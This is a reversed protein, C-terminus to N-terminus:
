RGLRRLMERPRDTIVLTVGLRRVRRLSAPAFSMIRVPGLLGPAPHALGFRGLTEVIHREVLGGYRTPHKAEIALEVPRGADVVLGLLAELTVIGTRERDAVEEDFVDWERQRAAFDLRELDALELASVVGVGDSTRQVTRDHVCVLHGDATLRVDTELGDAGLELAREYAAITHEPHEASAGRHGVVRV